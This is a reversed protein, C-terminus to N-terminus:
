KLAHGANLRSRLWIAMANKLNKHANNSVKPAPNDFAPTIEVVEANVGACTPRVHISTPATYLPTAIIEGVFPSVKSKTNVLAVLILKSKFALTVKGVPKVSIVVPTFEGVM